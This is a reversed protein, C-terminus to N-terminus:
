SPPRKLQRAAALAAALQPRRDREDSGKGNEVEALEGFITIGEAEAFWAVASRQAEIGLGSRGQRQTSVRIYAIACQSM